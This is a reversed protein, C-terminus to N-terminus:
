GARRSRGPKWRGSLWDAASPVGALSGASRVAKLVAREVAVPAFAELARLGAREPVAVDGTAMAFM